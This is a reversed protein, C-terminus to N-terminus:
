TRLAAEITLLERDRGVAAAAVLEGKRFYCALFDRSAVNGHLRVEDWGTAHGCMRLDVGQHHTWFFPVDVFPAAAGLLNAAAAQGQRQAHVWHEVRVLEGRHPYRAVDGAAFHSPASTQLHVDVVIGEQVSLGAAAALATRPVVGAGVIVQDASVQTGDALLLSRGNYSAVSTGPHFIVGAERHLDRLFGGVEAGLVREMPVAEPAVVHVDLGRARLAGAAELGIFGAGVFVVSRAQAADAVIARADDLSRLTRVNPRGFGHVPLRRPEAGTAFLLADYAVTDGDNLTLTRTAVDVASVECRLRLAIDRDAYFDSGQLPIWDEPATGALYDKSLNPRDYPADAEAGFLTVDGDFGLSRLREAAAFGAAGAGVIVIRRPAGAHGQRTSPAAAVPDARVFVLDDVCEVAYVPLGAFAPAALAEGTRL